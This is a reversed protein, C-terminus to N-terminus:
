KVGTLMDFIVRAFQKTRNPDSLLQMMQEQNADSSSLIADDVARPFDGLM